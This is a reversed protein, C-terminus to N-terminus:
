MYSVDVPRTFHFVPAVSAEVTQARSGLYDVLCFHGPVSRIVGTGPGSRLPPVLAEGDERSRGDVSRAGRVEVSGSSPM